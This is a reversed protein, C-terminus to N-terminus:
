ADQEAHVERHKTDEGTGVGLELGEKRLGEM